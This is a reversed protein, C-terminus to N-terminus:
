ADENRWEKEAADALKNFSDCASSLKDFVKAALEFGGETDSRFHLGAIERNRAVRGALTHLFPRWQEKEAAPLGKEICLAMLMAQTAHGSPFSPHGPIDVPPMLSPRLQSPRARPATGKTPNQKFHMSSLIGVLGAVHLLQAMKPNSNATIRLLAFFYAMIDEYSANQAAIEGLADAREDQAAKTLADLEEEQKDYPWPTLTIAQQWDTAGYEAVILWAAWRAQWDRKRWTNALSPVKALEGTVVPDGTKGDTHRHPKWARADKDWTQAPETNFPLSARDPLIATGTGVTAGSGLSGIDGMDGMDGMNSLKRM